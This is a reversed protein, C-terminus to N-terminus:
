AAALKVRKLHRTHGAPGVPSRGHLVRRNDLLLLEGSRLLVSRDIREQELANEFSRLAALHEDDVADPALRLGPAVRTPRYRARADGSDTVLVSGLRVVPDDPRPDPMPPVAFPFCPDALLRLHGGRDALIDAVDVARALLTRGDGAPSPRVCIMAIYAQPRALFSADTHLPDPLGRGGGAVLDHVLTGPAPGNYEPDATGLPHGALVLTNDRPPVGEVVVAGHDHVAEAADAMVAALGPARDCSHAWAERQIDVRELDSLRWAASSDSFAAATAAPMSVRPPWTM